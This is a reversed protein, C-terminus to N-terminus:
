GRNIETFNYVWWLQQEAYHKNTTAHTGDYHCSSIVSGQGCGRFSKCALNKGDAGYPPVFEEMEDSVQCQSQSKWQQLCFEESEYLHGDVSEGGDLPVTHDSRDYFSLLNSVGSTVIESGSPVNGYMPIFHSPKPKLDSGSILYTLMGGNSGGIIVFKSEDIGGVEEIIANTMEQIFLMDDYCTNWRCGDCVGLKQCSQYCVETTDQPVCPTSPLHWSWYGSGDDIGSDDMGGPYVMIFNLDDTYHNYDQFSIWNYFVGWGHFYYFLGPPNQPDIRKPYVVAFERETPGFNPDEITIKRFSRVYASIQGFHALSLALLTKFRM